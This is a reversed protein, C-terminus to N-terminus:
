VKVYMRGNGVLKGMNVLRRVHSGFRNRCVRGHDGYVAQVKDDTIAEPVDSFTDLVRSYSGHNVHRLQGNEDDIQQALAKLGSPTLRFSHGCREFKTSNALYCAVRSISRDSDDGYVIRALSAKDIGANDNIAKAILAWAPPGSSRLRRPDPTDKRWSPALEMSKALAKQAVQLDFKRLALRIAWIAREEELIPKKSVAM